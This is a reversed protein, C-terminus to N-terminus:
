LLRGTQVIQRNRWNWLRMSKLRLISPFGSVGIASRSHKGAEGFCDVAIGLVMAFILTLAFARNM